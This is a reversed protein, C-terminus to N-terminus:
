GEAALLRVQSGRTIKRIGGEIQRHHTEIQDHWDSERAWLERHWKEERKQEERLSEVAEAIDRFRTVFSDSLVYDFLQQAKDEREEHSLRTQAIEIIGNRIIGALHVAMRPEVVPIGGEICLGREGKRPFAQTVIVVHATGHENRCRKAQAIFKKQWRTVNKSEYVICGLEKSGERVYHLVDGGKVGRGVREVRDEPFRAKLESWLDVESDDGRQESTRKELQRQLEEVRRQLREADRAHIKRERERVDRGREVDKRSEKLEKRLEALHRTVKAMATRQALRQADSLKREYKQEAERRAAEKEQALRQRHLQEQTQRASEVEM